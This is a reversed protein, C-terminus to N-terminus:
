AADEQYGIRVIDTRGELFHRSLKEASQGPLLDGLTVMYTIGGLYNGDTNRAKYYLTVNRLTTERNNTVKLTNGSAMISLGELSSRADDRFSTKVNQLIFLSDDRATRKSAELVWASAGAPLGTVRFLAEQGDLQYTLQDLDLYRDSTNTILVAAVNEVPEDSGDEVFAGSFVAYQKCVLPSEIPQTVPETMPETIPETMPETPSPETPEPQTVQPETVSPESPETPEPPIDTGLETPSPETATPATQPSTPEQTPETQEPEPATTENPNTLTQQQDPDDTQGPEQGPRLCVAAVLVATVLLGVGIM